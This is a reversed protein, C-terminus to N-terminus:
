GRALRRRKRARWRDALTAEVDGPIELGAHPISLVLPADGRAISLWDSM